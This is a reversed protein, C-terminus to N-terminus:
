FKFLMQVRMQHGSADAATPSANHLYAYETQIQWNYGFPYFNVGGLGEWKDAGTIETVSRNMSVRGLLEIRKKWVFYSSQVFWGLGDSRGDGDPDIGAVKHADDLWLMRYWVESTIFFGKYAFSLDGVALAAKTHVTVKDSGRKDARAVYYEKEMPNFAGSVGFSLLPKESYAYDGEYDPMPGLPHSSLRGAVMVDTNDQKNAKATGNFVGVAYEFMRNKISGRLAIGVDRDTYFETRPPASTVSSEVWPALIGYRGVPTLFQGARIGIEPLPQWDLYYDLFPYPTMVLDMLITASLDKFM